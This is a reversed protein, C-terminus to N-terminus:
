LNGPLYKMRANSYQYIDDTNNIPLIMMEDPYRRIDIDTFWHGFFNNVTIMNADMQLAKNSKKTFKIPVCVEMTSYNSYTNATREIM